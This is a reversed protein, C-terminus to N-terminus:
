RQQIPILLYSGPRESPRITWGPALQLVWGPGRIPRAELDLPAPIRLSRNDPSVLAGGSEVQLKGWDAAFTGTPYYTGYPPMPVLTQPNFNRNM